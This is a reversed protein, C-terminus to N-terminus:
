SRMSFPQVQWWGPSCMLRPWEPWAFELYGAELMRPPGIVPGYGVLAGLWDRGGARVPGNRATAGTGHARHPDTQGRGLAVMAPITLAPESRINSRLEEEPPSPFGSRRWGRPGGPQEAPPSWPSTAASTDQDSLQVGTVSLGDPSPVSGRSSRGDVLRVNPLEIVTRGLHGRRLAPERPRQDQMSRERSMEHGSAAIMKNRCGAAVCRTTPWWSPRSAPLLLQDIAPATGRCSRAYTGEQTSGRRGHGPPPLVERRSNHVRELPRLSRVRGSAAVSAGIVVAHNANDTM